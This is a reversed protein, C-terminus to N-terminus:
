RGQPRRLGPWVETQCGLQCGNATLTHQDCRHPLRGDPQRLAAFWRGAIGPETMGANLRNVSCPDITTGHPSTGPLIPRPPRAAKLYALADLTAATGDFDAALWHCQDDDLLPYLGIELQGSLHATLVQETLPLYDGAGPRVGKQWRGRVAPMWGSRQTRANEWRVAYVDRRGGFLREYFAVKESPPSKADVPGPDV